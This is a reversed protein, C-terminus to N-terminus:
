KNGKVLNSILAALGFGGIAGMAMRALIKDLTLVSTDKELFQIHEHIQNTQEPDGTGQKLEAKLHAIQLGNELKIMEPDALHLGYHMLWYAVNILLFVIFPIRLIERFDRAAGNKAIDERSALYMFGIYFILSGWQLVPSYYNSKGQAYVLLFFGVVVIAGLFGYKVDINKM